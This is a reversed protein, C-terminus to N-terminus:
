QEETKVTDLMDQMALVLELASRFYFEKKVARQPVWAAHGQWSGSQRYLVTVWFTGLRGYHRWTDEVSHYAKLSRRRVAIEVGDGELRPEIFGRRAFAAQPFAAGDMVDNAARMFGILDSFPQIRELYRGYLVGSAVRNEFGDICVVFTAPGSTFIREHEM